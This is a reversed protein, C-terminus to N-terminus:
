NPREKPGLCARPLFPKVVFSSFLGEPYLVLVALAWVERENLFLLHMGGGVTVYRDNSKQGDSPESISEEEEDREQQGHGSM